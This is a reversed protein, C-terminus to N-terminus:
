HCGCSCGKKAGALEAKTQAIEDKVLLKQRKLEALKDEDYVEGAEMAAIEKDLAAHRRELTEIHAILSEKEM